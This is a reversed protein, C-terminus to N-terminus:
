NFNNKKKIFKAGMKKNLRMKSEIARMRKCDIKGDIIECLKGEEKKKMFDEKSQFNIAARDYAYAELGLRTVVSLIISLIVTKKTV